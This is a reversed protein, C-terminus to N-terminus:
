PYIYSACKKKIRESLVINPVGYVMDIVQQQTYGSNLLGQVVAKALSDIGYKAIADSVLVLMGLAAIGALMGWPGGLLALASVIAAGGYLGTTSIVVVLVLGPIGLAVLKQVIEDFSM